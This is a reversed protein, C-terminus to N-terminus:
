GYAYISQFTDAPLGVADILLTHIVEGDFATTTVTTQGDAETITRNSLPTGQSDWWIGTVVVDQGAEFGVLRDTDGNTAGIFFEDAGGGGSFVENGTGTTFTDAHRGGTVTANLAGGEFRLATDASVAFNEIGAFAGTDLSASIVGDDFGVKGATGTSDVTINVTAPVIGYSTKITATDAKVFLTDTGVDGIFLDTGASVLGAVEYILTDNGAGGRVDDIGTGGNLTDNGDGGRLRDNGSGGHLYDNGVGGDIYDDGAEGYLYDDGDQGFLADIGGGAWIRDNGGGGYLGDDASTGYIKDDGPTGQKTTM